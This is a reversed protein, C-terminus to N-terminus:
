LICLLTSGAKLHSKTSVPYSRHLGAPSQLGMCVLICQHSLCLAGPCPAQVPKLEVVQIFILARYVQCPKHQLAPSSEGAQLIGTREVVHQQSLQKPSLSSVM